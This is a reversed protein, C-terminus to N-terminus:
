GPILLALGPIGFGLIAAALEFLLRYNRKMCTGHADSAAHPVMYRSRLRGSRPLCQAAEARDLLEHLESQADKLALVLLPSACAVALAASAAALAASGSGTLLM